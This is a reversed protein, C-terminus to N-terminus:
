SFLTNIQREKDIEKLTAITLELKDVKEGAEKLKEQYIILEKELEKLTEEFHSPTALELKSADNWTGTEKFFVCGLEVKKVTVVKEGNMFHGGSKYRVKDGKKFTYM